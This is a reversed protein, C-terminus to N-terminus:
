LNSNSYLMEMRRIKAPEKPKRSKCGLFFYLLIVGICAAFLAIGIWHYDRLWVLRGGFDGATLEGTIPVIEQWTLCTELIQLSLLLIVVIGSTFFVLGAITKVFDAGHYVFLERFYIESMRKRYFRLNEILGGGAKIVFLLIAVFLSSKWAVSFREDFASASKSLSLFDYNNEHIGVSKLANKVYAESIGGDDMLVMLSQAQGGTVSSPAYIKANEMDKDQIVGTIIWPEGDLKLTSGSIRNSGFIQFAATENLVAHKNKADWASKTFFGGDLPLYGMINAYNQNTGMLTVPHKSNIAQAMLAQRIEYTLLFEEESFEELKEPNQGPTGFTSPTVLLLNRYKEQGALLSMVLLAALLLVAIVILVTNTRIKM